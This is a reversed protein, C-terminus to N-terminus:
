CFVCNTARRISPQVPLHLQSFFVSSSTLFCFIDGVDNVGSNPNYHLNVPSQKQKGLRQSYIVNARTVFAWRGLVCTGGDCGVFLLDAPVLWPNRKSPLTPRPSPSYKQLGVLLGDIWTQLVAVVTIAAAAPSRGRLHPLFYLGSGKLAPWLAGHTELLQVDTGNSGDVVVDFRIELQAVWTPLEDVPVRETRIEDGSASEECGVEPNLLWLASHPLRSRWQGIATQRDGCLVGHLLVHPRFSANRAPQLLTAFLESLPAPSPDPKSLSANPESINLDSPSAGPRSPAKALACAEPQCFIWQAHQPLKWLNFAALTDPSPRAAPNCSPFGVVLEEMWAQVVDSVVMHGLTDDFRRLRGVQLDELFYLGGPLVEEWLLAFSVLIMNNKHGGDDVVVHFQGGSQQVWRRVDQANGQDGTLANIGVKELAATHAHVCKADVEAEWIEAHTLLRRWLRASAGAGYGMDCGLGIEIFKFPSSHRFPYLFLGYM